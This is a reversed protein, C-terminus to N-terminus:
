PILVIKGAAGPQMVATHAAAAAALTFSQSIIPRLTGAALGPALADHIAQRESTTANFLLVGRVDADRVMRHRATM